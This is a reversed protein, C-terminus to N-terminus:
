KEGSNQKQKKAQPSFSSSMQLPPKGTNRYRDQKTSLERDTPVYPKTQREIIPIKPMIKDKQLFHSSVYDRTQAAM